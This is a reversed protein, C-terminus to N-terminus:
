QADTIHTDEHTNETPNIHGYPDKFRVPNLKPQHRDITAKPLYTNSTDNNKNLGKPQSVNQSQESPATRQRYKEIFLPGRLPFFNKEM